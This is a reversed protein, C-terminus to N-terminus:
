KIKHRLQRSFPNRHNERSFATVFCEGSVRAIGERQLIRSQIARIAADNRAKHTASQTIRDCGGGQESSCNTAFQFVRKQRFIASGPRREIEIIEESCKAFCLLTFQESAFKCVLENRARSVLVNKLVPLM